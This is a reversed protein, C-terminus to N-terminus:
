AAVVTSDSRVVGPKGAAILARLADIASTAPVVRANVWLAPERSDAPSTALQPYDAAVVAKLHPRVRVSVSQGLEGVLDILRFSGCSIAFAPKGLAVPDLREVRQDEFLIIPM